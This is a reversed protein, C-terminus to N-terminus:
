EGSGLKLTGPVPLIIRGEDPTGTELFREGLYYVGVLACTVADLEDLSLSEVGELAIGAGKLFSRIGKQVQTRKIRWITQAAHPFTEIVEFGSRSFEQKLMMGRETLRRMPGITLPLIRIGLNRVELDCRRFHKGSAACACESKLCCRGEPLSLPADVVILRIGPVAAALIDDDSYLVRAVAKGGTLLCIGTPRRPSAALDIGLIATTSM